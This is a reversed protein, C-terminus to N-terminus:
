RHTHTHTIRLPMPIWTVHTRVVCKARLADSALHRRICLDREVDIYWWFWVTGNLTLRTARIRAGLARATSNYRVNCCSLNRLLTVHVAGSPDLDSWLLSLWRDRSCAAPRNARKACEGVNGNSLIIIPRPPFPSLFLFSLSPSASFSIPCHHGIHLGSFFLVPVSSANGSRHM